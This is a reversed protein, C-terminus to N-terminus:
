NSKLKFLQTSAAKGTQIYNVDHWSESSSVGRHEWERQTRWGLKRSHGIEIKDLGM